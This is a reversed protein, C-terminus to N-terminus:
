RVSNDVCTPLLSSSLKVMVPASNSSISANRRVSSPGISAEALSRRGGGGRRSAFGCRDDRAGDRRARALRRASTHNVPHRRRERAPHRPLRLVQRSARQERDRRSASNRWAPALMCPGACGRAGGVPSRPRPHCGRVGRRRNAPLRSLSEASGTYRRPVKLRFAVREAIARIAACRENAAMSSWKEGPLARFHDGSGSRFCSFRAAACNELARQRVRVPSGKRVMATRTPKGAASLLGFQRRPRRIRSEAAALLCRCREAGETVWENGPSLLRLTRDAAHSPFDRRPALSRRRSSPGGAGAIQGRSSRVTRFSGAARRESRDVM